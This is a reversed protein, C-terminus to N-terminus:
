QPNRSLGRMIWIHDELDTTFSVDYPAGMSIVLFRYGSREILTILCLGAEETFGTKGGLVRYPMGSDQLDEWLRPRLKLGESGDKPQTTYHDATFYKMFEVNRSAYQYLKLLDNATTEHEPDHLGTPNKFVTDQMGLEAAKENMLAVFDAESGAVEIAITESADGASAIFNAYLMDRMTVIEGPKFGSMSAEEAVMEWYIEESLMVEEDLMAPTLHEVAVIQTMMKTLSAPYTILDANKEYLVEDTDVSYLLAVESQIRRRALNENFSWNITEKTGDPETEAAVETAEEENTKEPATETQGNAAEPPQQDKDAGNQILRVGMYLLLALAGILLLRRINKQRRRRKRAARRKEIEEMRVRRRAAADARSKSTKSM